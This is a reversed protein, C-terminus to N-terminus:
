SSFHSFSANWIKCLAFHDLRRVDFCGTFLLFSCNGHICKIQNERNCLCIGCLLDPFKASEWMLVPINLRRAWFIFGQLRVNPQLHALRLSWSSLPQHPHIGGNAIRIWVETMWRVAEWRLSGRDCTRLWRAGRWEERNTKEAHIYAERGKMRKKHLAAACLSSILQIM